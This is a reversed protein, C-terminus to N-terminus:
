YGYFKMKKWGTVKKLGDKEAVMLWWETNLLLRNSEQSYCRDNKQKKRCKACYTKINKEEM